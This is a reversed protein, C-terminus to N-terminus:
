RHYTRWRNRKISDLAGQLSGYKLCVILLDVDHAEQPAWVEPYQYRIM